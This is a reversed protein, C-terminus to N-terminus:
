DMVRLVSYVEVEEVESSSLHGTSLVVPQVMEEKAERHGAWLGSRVLAAVEVVPSPPQGSRNARGEMSGQGRDPTQLAERCALAETLARDAAREEM